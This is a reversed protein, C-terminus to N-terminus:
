SQDYRTTQLVCRAPFGPSPQWPAARWRGGAAGDDKSTRTAYIGRIVIRPRGLIEEDDPLVLGVSVYGGRDWAGLEDCGHRGGRGRGFEAAGGPVDEEALARALEAAAATPGAREDAQEASRYYM